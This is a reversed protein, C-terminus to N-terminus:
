SFSVTPLSYVTLPVNISLSVPLANSTSPLATVASVGNLGAASFPVVSTVKSNSLDAISPLSILRTTKSFTKLASPLTMPVWSSKFSEACVTSNLGSVGTISVEAFSLSVPVFSPFASSFTVIM